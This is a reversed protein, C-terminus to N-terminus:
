YSKTALSKLTNTGLKTLYNKSNLIKLKKLEAILEINIDRYLSEFYDMLQWDNLNTVIEKDLIDFLKYFLIKEDMRPFNIAPIDVERNKMNSIVHLATQIDKIENDTIKFGINIKSLNYEFDESPEFISTEKKISLKTYRPPGFLFSPNKIIIRGIIILIFIFSITMGFILITLDFGEAKSCLVALIAEIILMALAFLGLPSKISNIINMRDKSSSSEKKM